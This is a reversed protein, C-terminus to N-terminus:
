QPGNRPMKLFGRKAASNTTTTTKLPFTDLTHRCKKNLPSLLTIVGNCKCSVLFLQESHPQQSKKQQHAFNFTHINM